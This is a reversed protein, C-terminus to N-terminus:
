ASPALKNAPSPIRIIRGDLKPLQSHPSKFFHELLEKLEIKLVWKELAQEFFRYDDGGQAMYSNTAVGYIKNPNLPKYKTAIFDYVKIDIIRQGQPKHPDFVYKLGAVQLFRGTNDNKKDEAFGVGHELIQRILSGKLKFLVLKKEFPLAEKLHVRSIPGKPLSARIGGANMLAIEAGMKRTYFLMADSLFNGAVCEEFRCDHAEIEANATGVKESEFALIPKYLELAEEAMKKHRVISQDLLIPEGQWAIPVGQADFSFEIRGLFKGYAFASGILTPKKSPSKIVLPCPGDSHPSKNSLLSNTHGSIIAAIGDVSQAIQIDRALGAHSLAIIVDVHAKKLESVAKRVSEIIPEFRIDPGPNSLFATDETTYGVVGIKINNKNIIVYPKIKNKLDASKTLNINASLMPFKIKNIFNALGAPGNDFEHNGVAMADYGITNMFGASALGSYLYHFMTGQFQDGADLLIVPLKKAREALVQTYIRDFGGFCISKDREEPTCMGENAKVGLVRAHMDNTHLIVLKKLPQANALAALLLLVSAKIFSYKM